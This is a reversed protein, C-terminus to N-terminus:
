RNKALVRPMADAWTLLDCAISLRRRKTEDM